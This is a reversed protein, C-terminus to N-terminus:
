FVRLDEGSSHPSIQTNYIDRKVHNGTVDLLTVSVNTGIKISEGKPLELILM